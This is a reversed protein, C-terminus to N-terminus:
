FVVELHLNNREDDSEGEKLGQLLQSPSQREFSEIEKNGETGNDEEETARMGAKAEESTENTANQHGLFNSESAPSDQDPQIIYEDDIANDMYAGQESNFDEQAQREGTFDGYLSPEIQGTAYNADGEYNQLDFSEIQSEPQLLTSDEEIEPHTESEDGIQAEASVENEAHHGDENLQNAIEQTHDFALKDEDIVNQNTEANKVGNEEEVQCNTEGLAEGETNENASKPIPAEGEVLSKNAGENEGAFNHM